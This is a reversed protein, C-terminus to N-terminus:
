DTEIQWRCGVVGDECAGGHVVVVVVVFFFFFIHASGDLDTPAATAAETVLRILRELHLLCLYVRRVADISALKRSSHVTSYCRSHSAPLGSGPGAIAIFLYTDNM